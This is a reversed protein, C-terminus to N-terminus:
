EARLGDSARRAAARAAPVAAAVLAVLMAGVVPVVVHPLRVHADPLVFAGGATARWLTSGVAVGVPVGVLAGLIVIALAMVIVSAGTQRRTFGIARLVALDRGRRRVAVVLANAIALVAVSGVIAAVTGPLRGLQELNQVTVPTAQPDAEFRESLLETLEEVDAGPAAQV